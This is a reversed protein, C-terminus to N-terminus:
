QAEVNDSNALPVAPPVVRVTNLNPDMAARLTLIQIEHAMRERELQIDREQDKRAQEDKEKGRNRLSHILMYGGLVVGTVIVLTITLNLPASTAWTAISGIIGLVAAPIAVFRNSIKTVWDDAAPTPPPPEGNTATVQEVEVAPPPVLNAPQPQEVANTATALENGTNADASPASITPPQPATSVPAKRSDLLGDAALFERFIAARAMVDRSYDKGTTYGDISTGNAYAYQPWRGSNYSAIAIAQAISGSAPKGTYTKGKITVRKGFNREMDHWKQMLVEAGKLIGLRADKWKTSSTFEPFSRDDIQMLGAGHGNDGKKTLWKPDLNTERSGIGLLDATDFYGVTITNAAERFHEIWLLKKARDYQTRLQRRTANM